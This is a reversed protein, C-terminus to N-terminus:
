HSKKEKEKDNSSKPFVQVLMDAKKNMYQDFDIIKKSADFTKHYKDIFTVYKNFSEKDIEGTVFSSDNKVADVIEM